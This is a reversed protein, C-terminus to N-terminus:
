LQETEDAHIVDSKENLMAELKKIREELTAVDVPEPEKYPEVKFPTVTKYGAGDTQCLWVLPANDDLVIASSNPLMALAEAGPRGNVHIVEYHQPYQYYNM